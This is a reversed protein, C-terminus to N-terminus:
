TTLETTVMRPPFETVRQRGCGLGDELQEAGTVAGAPVTSPRVAGRQSPADIPRVLALAASM